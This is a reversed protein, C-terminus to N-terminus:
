QFISAKGVKCKRSVASINGEKFDAICGVGPIYRASVETLYMCTQNVDKAQGTKTYSTYIRRLARIDVSSSLQYSRQIKKRNHQTAKGKRM